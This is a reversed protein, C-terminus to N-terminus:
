PVNSDACRSTDVLADGDSEMTARVEQAAAELKALVGAGEGVGGLIEAVSVQAGEVFAAFSTQVEALAVGAAAADEPHQYGRRERDEELAAAAAAATPGRAVEMGLASGDAAAKLHKEARTHSTHYRPVLV